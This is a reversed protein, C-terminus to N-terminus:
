CTEGCSGECINSDIGRGTCFDLGVWACPETHLGSATAGETSEKVESVVDKAEQQVPESQNAGASNWRQLGLAIVGMERRREQWERILAFEPRAEFLM